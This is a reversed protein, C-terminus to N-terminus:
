KADIDSTKIWKRFDTNVNIAYATDQNWARAINTLKASRDCWKLINNFFFRLISEKSDKKYLSIPNQYDNGKRTFNTSNKM